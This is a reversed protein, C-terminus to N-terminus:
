LNMKGAWLSKKEGCFNQDGVFILLLRKKRENSDTVGRKLFKFFFKLEFFNETFNREFGRLGM